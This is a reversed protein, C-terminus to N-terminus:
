DLEPSVRLTSKYKGAITLTILGADGDERGDIEIPYTQKADTKELPCVALPDKGSGYVLLEPEGKEGKRVGLLYFTAKVTNNDVDISVNRLKDGSAPSGNVIPTLKRMWFHGVPVVDKDAKAIADASLKKDPIALAGFEEHRVGYPKDNDVDAQIPLNAQKAAHDQLLKAIQQAHDTPIREQGRALSVTALTLLCALLGTTRRM